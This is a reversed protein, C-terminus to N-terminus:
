ILQMLACYQVIQYINQRLSRCHLFASKRGSQLMVEMCFHTEMKLATFECQPLLTNENTQKDMKGDLRGDM